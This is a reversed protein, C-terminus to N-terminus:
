DVRFVGDPDNASRVESLRGRVEDGLARTRTGARDAFNLYTVESSWPTM